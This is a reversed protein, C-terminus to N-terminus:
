KTPPTNTTIEVDSDHYSEIVTAVQYPKERRQKKPKKQPTVVAEEVIYTADNM